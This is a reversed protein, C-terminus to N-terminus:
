AVEKCAGYARGATDFVIQGGNEWCIGGEMTVLVGADVSYRRGFTAANAYESFAAIVRGGTSITYPLAGGSATTPINM